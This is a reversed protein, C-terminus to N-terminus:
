VKILWDVCVQLFKEKEQCILDEAHNCKKFIEFHKICNAKFFLSETDLLHIISDSEGAIFLTPVNLMGAVDIPRIKKKNSFSPRLTALIKLEYKNFQNKLFDKVWMFHKIRSFSHPASVTILRDINMNAASYIISIAGGLSFGLLYVKNYTNKAYNVVTTLDDAEKSTFTYFGSSKGHGRFDISIVDFFKSFKRAIKRIFKSDKSMTWGPAIILVNEKDTKYHNIAIKVNDVTTLFIERPTNM